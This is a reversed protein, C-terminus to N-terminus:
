IEVRKLIQHPDAFCSAYNQEYNKTWVPVQTIYTTLQCTWYLTPSDLKTEKLVGRGTGARGIAISSGDGNPVLMAWWM